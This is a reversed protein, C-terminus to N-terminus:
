EGVATATESLRTKAARWAAAVNPYEGRALAAAIEPYDRKMRAVRYAASNGYNSRVKDPQFQRRRDGGQANLAPIKEALMRAKRAHVSARPRYPRRRPEATDTWTPPVPVTRDLKWFFRHKPTRDHKVAAVIIDAPLRDYDPEGFRRQLGNRSMWRAKGDRGDILAYTNPRTTWGAPTANAARYIGGSERARKDAYAVVLRIGRKKLDRLCAGIL